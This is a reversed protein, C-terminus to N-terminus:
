ITKTPQVWWDPHAASLADAAAQCSESDKFIGFCTAGSGSMRALECGTQRGILHLVDSIVPAIAIAPSQLDNRQKTVWALWDASDAPPIANPMAPNSKNPLAQFVQPTPVEQRPNVLLVDLSPTPGLLSLSEGIGSMRTLKTTMCVGVDAGLATIANSDPLPVDWLSSLAILTAAADASGGGVGSALPLNKTLTIAAGRNLGFARAADLVLNEKTSLGAGFPGDITLSLTDANTVAVVDGYATFMVLSDLLHYGDSRQGTVHLTLNVKAPAAQRLQKTTM